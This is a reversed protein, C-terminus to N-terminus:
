QCKVLPNETVGIKPIRDTNQHQFVNDQNNM